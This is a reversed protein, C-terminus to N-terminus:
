RRTLGTNLGNKRDHSSSRPVHDDSFDCSRAINKKIEDNGRWGTIRGQEGRGRGGKEKREALGKRDQM